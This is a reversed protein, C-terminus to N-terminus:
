RKDLIKALACAEEETRVTVSTRGNDVMGSVYPAMLVRDGLTMAIVSGVRSRTTKMWHPIYLDDFVLAVGFVPEYKWSEDYTWAEASKIETGRVIPSQGKGNSNGFLFFLGFTSDNMSMWRPFYENDRQECVQRAIAGVATTDAVSCMVPFDTQTFTTDLANMEKMVLAYDKDTESLVDWILFDEKTFHQGFVEDPNVQCDELPVEQPPREQNHCSNCGSFLMAVAM